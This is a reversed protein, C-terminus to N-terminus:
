TCESSGIVRGEQPITTCYNTCILLLRVPFHISRPSTENCAYTTIVEVNLVTRYRQQTVYQDRQEHNAQMPNKSATWDNGATM